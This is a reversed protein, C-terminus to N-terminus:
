MYLIQMQEMQVVGFLYELRVKAPMTTQKIM